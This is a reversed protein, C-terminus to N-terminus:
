WCTRVRCRASHRDVGEQGDFEEVDTATGSVLERLCATTVASERRPGGSLIIARMAVERMDCM